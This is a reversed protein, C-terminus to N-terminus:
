PLGYAVKVPKGNVGSKMAKWFADELDNVRKLANSESESGRVYKVVGPLLKSLRTRMSASDKKYMKLFIPQSSDPFLIPLMLLGRGDQNSGVSGASNASRKASRKSPNRKPKAVSAM